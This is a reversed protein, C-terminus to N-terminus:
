GVLLPRVVEKVDPGYHVRARIEYTGAQLAPPTTLDVRYICTGVIQQNSPDYEKIIQGDKWVSLIITVPQQYQTNLAALRIEASYRDGSRIRDPTLWLGEVNIKPGQYPQYGYLRETQQAPVVQQGRHWNAVWYGALAGVGAGVGAGILAGETRKGKPAAQSGIAAGAGAGVAGGLLAAQEPTMNACGALIAIIALLACRRLAWRARGM